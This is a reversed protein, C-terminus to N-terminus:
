RRKTKLPRRKAVRVRKRKNRHYRRKRLRLELSYLKADICRGAGGVIDPFIRYFNIVKVSKMPYDGVKILMSINVWM